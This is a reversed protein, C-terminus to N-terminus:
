SANTLILKSNILRGNRFLCSFGNYWLEAKIIEDDPLWATLGKDGSNAEVNNPQTKLLYDTLSQTDPFYITVNKM